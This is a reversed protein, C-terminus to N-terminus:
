QIKENDKYNSGNRLIEDNVRITDIKERESDNYIYYYNEEVIALAENNNIIKIPMFETKNEQDVRYVGINGENTVISDRHIKIGYYEESSITADIKRDVYFDNFTEDVEVVLIGYSFHEFVDYVELEFDKNNYTMDVKNINNYLKIEDYPIKFAIYYKFNDVIKYVADGTMLQDTGINNISIDEKFIKDYDILYVNDINLIKEFNDIRFSVIGSNNSYIDIINQDELLNGTNIMEEIDVKAAGSRKIKERYDLKLDLRNKLVPVESLQDENILKVIEDKLAQIENNIKDVGSNIYETTDTEEITQQESSEDNLVVEAIKQSRKVKQGENVFYKIDGSIDSNVIKENRIIIGEYNNQLNLKGYKALYYEDPAMFFGNIIKYIVYGLFALLLLFRIFKFKNKIVM